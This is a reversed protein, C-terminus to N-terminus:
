ELFVFVFLFLSRIDNVTTNKQWILWLFKMWCMELFTLYQILVVFRKEIVVQFSSLNEHAFLVKQSGLQLVVVRPLLVKPRVKTKKKQRTVSREVFDFYSRDLFPDVTVLSVLVFFIEFFLHM